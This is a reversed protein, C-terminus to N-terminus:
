KSVLVGFLGLIAKFMLLDYTDWMYTVLIWSDWINSWKARRRAMKLIYAMQLCTCRIVKFQGQVRCPWIVRCIYLLQGRTEFKVRNREIVLRKRTVPWKSVLEGVSVLIVKFVVLDFTCWMYTVLTGLDWIESRKARLGARKLIDCMKYNRM